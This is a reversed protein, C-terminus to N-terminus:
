LFYGQGKLKVRRQEQKELENSFELSSGSNLWVESQDPLVFHVRSGPTAIVQQMVPQEASISSQWSLRSYLYGSFILLPITLIAAARVLYSLWPTSNKGGAHLLVRNEAHVVSRIHAKIKKLDEEDQVSSADGMENWHREMFENLKKDQFTSKIYSCLHNKESENLAGSVMQDLLLDIDDQERSEM